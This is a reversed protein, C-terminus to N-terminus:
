KKLIFLKSIKDVFMRPRLRSERSQDTSTSEQIPDNTGSKHYIDYINLTNPISQVTDPNFEESVSLDSVPNGYAFSSHDVSLSSLFWSKDTMLKHREIETDENSKIETTMREAYSCIKADDISSIKTDNINIIKETINVKSEKKCLTIRDMKSKKSKAKGSKLMNDPKETIVSNRVCLFYKWIESRIIVTGARILCVIMDNSIDSLYEEMMMEKM